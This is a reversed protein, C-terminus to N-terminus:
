YLNNVNSVIRIFLSKEDAKIILEIDNLLIVFHNKLSKDDNRKLANKILDIENTARYDYNTLFFIKIFMYLISFLGGILLYYILSVMKPLIIPDMKVISNSLLSIAVGFAISFTFMTMIPILRAKEIFSIIYSHPYKLNILSSITFIAITFSLVFVIIFDRIRNELLNKSEKTTVSVITLFPHPILCLLFLFLIIIPIFWYKKIELWIINNM